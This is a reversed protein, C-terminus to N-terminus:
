QTIHEFFNVLQAGKRDLLEKLEAESLPSVDDPEPGNNLVFMIRKIKGTLVAICMLLPLGNFDSLFELEDFDGISSPLSDCTFGSLQLTESDRVNELIFDKGIYRKFRQM